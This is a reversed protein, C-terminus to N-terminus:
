SPKTSGSANRIHRFGAAAPKVWISRHLQFSHLKFSSAQLLPRKQLIWRSRSKQETIYLATDHFRHRPIIRYKKIDNQGLYEPQLGCLFTWLLQYLLVPIPDQANAANHVQYLEVCYLLRMGTIEATLSHTLSQWWLFCVKMKVWFSRPGDRVAYPVIRCICHGQKNM